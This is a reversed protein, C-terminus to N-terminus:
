DIAAPSARSNKLQSTSRKFKSIWPLLKDPLAHMEFIEGLETKKKLSREITKNFLWFKVPKTSVQLPMRALSSKTANVLEETDVGQALLLPMIIPSIVFRRWESKAQITLSDIRRQNALRKQEENKKRVRELFPGVPAPGRAVKSPRLVKKQRNLKDWADRERAM